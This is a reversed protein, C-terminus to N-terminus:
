IAGASPVDEKTRPRLEWSAKKEKKREEKLNVLTKSKGVAAGM